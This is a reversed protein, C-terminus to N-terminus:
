EMWDMLGFVFGAKRRGGQGLVSPESRMADRVGGGKPMAWNRAEDFWGPQGPQWAERLVAIQAM